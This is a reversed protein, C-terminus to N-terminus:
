WKVSSWKRIAKRLEEHSKAYDRLDKGEMAANIAQRMARAGSVTGDPHGHIGGGAQIVIDKGLMKMLKPVLVPHVGGSSVPFVPKIKGWSMKMENRGDTKGTIGEKIRVVESRKGELKGFVTGIHIQDVGILRAAKALVLMSIGHNENRTMAAHMARHAHIILSSHKRVTQLAAWGVTIIDVMVYKGGMSKVEDMRELMLETEASINPLYAKKEGTEEEAKEVAELSLTLRNSFKNFSQNTLNEDDKVIDCGGLLAEYVVKAHEKSSLGLKPKVITGLIPRKGVGLKKRVGEIGYRPGQYRKVIKSSFKVDELRISEVVKMGLINGAISSFIQPINSAEFLDYPYAIWSYDGKIKFVRAKIREARTNKTKVDTWTGTSSELAINKAAEKRSKKTKYKFLCVLDTKKPKYSFDVYDM